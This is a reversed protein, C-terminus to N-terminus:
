EFVCYLPLAEFPVILWPLISFEIWSPEQGQWCSVVTALQRRPTSWLSGPSPARTRVRTQRVVLVECRLLLMLKTM